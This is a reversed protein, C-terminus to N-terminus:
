GGDGFVWGVEWGACVLGAAVFFVLFLFAVDGVGVVEGRGGEGCLADVGDLEATEHLLERLAVDAAGVFCEVTAGYGADGGVGGIRGGEGVVFFEFAFVM